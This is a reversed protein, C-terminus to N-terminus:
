KIRTVTVSNEDFDYKYKKLIGNPDGNFNPNFPVCIRDDETLLFYWGCKEAFEKMINEITLFIFEDPNKNVYKVFEYMFVDCFCSSSNTYYYKEKYYGRAYEPLSEFSVFQASENVKMDIM